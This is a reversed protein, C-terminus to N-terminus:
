PNRPSEAKSPIEATAQQTVPTARTAPNAAPPMAAEQWRDYARCDNSGYHANCDKEADREAEAASRRGTIISIGCYDGACTQAVAGYGPTDSVKVPKCDKGGRYLCDETAKKIAAEKGHQNWAVGYRGTSESFVVATTANVGSLVLATAMFMLLNLISKTEM